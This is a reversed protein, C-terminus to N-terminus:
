NSEVAIIDVSAFPAVAAVLSDIVGIYCVGDPVDLQQVYVVRKIDDFDFANTSSIYSVLAAQFAPYSPNFAANEIYCGSYIKGDTTEFALGSPCKSYPAYSRNAEFLARQALEDDSPTSLRLNNNVPSFLAETIGLDAPGFSQPLYGSLLISEEAGTLQNFQVIELQDAGMMENMFQRCHGCPPVFMGMKVLGTEGRLYANVVTFQEAHTTNAIPTGPLEINRGFYISGSEGLAVVGVEFKSIAINQNSKVMSPLTRLLNDVSIDLEKTIENTEASTLFMRGDQPLMKQVAVSLSGVTSLKTKTRVVGVTTKLNLWQSTVRTGGHMLKRFM